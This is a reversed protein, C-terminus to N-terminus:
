IEDCKWETFPDSSCAFWSMLLLKLIRKEIRPAPLRRTDSLAQLRSRRFAWISMHVCTCIALTLLCVICIFSCADEPNPWLEAGSM